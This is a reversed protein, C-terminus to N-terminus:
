FYAGCFRDLRYELTKAVIVCLFKCFRPSAIGRMIEQKTIVKKTM